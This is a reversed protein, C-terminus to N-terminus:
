SASDANTFLRNQDQVAEYVQKYFSTGPGCLKLINDPEFALPKGGWIINEWESAAALILEGTAEELQAQFKQLLGDAGKDQTRGLRDLLLANIREVKRFADKVDDAGMGKIKIRCPGEKAEMHLYLPSGNHEFHVWSGRESAARLDLNAFDM